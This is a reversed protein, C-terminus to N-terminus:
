QCQRCRENIESCQCPELDNDSQNEHICIGQKGGMGVFVIYFLADTEANNRFSLLLPLNFTSYKQKKLAMM